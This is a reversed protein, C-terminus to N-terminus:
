KARPRGFPFQLTTWETDRPKVVGLSDRWQIRQRVVTWLEENDPLWSRQSKEPAEDDLPCLIRFGISRDRNPDAMWSLSSPFDPDEMWLEEDAVLRSMPQCDAVEDWCGGGCALAAFRTAAYGVSEAVSYEYPELQWLHSGKTNSDLVWESVNGLMDHIGFANPLRQGVRLPGGDERGFVAISKLQSASLLEAPITGQRHSALCAYTWEAESPLRYHDKLLISLWKTYQRAAYQSMSTAPCDPSTAFELRSSTDYILTPATVADIQEPEIKRPQSEKRFAVALSMFGAYEHWTVEYKGLWFPRIIITVIQGNDKQIRLTGGPVPIMEFTAETGPIEATFPVMFGRDTEVYLGSEPRAHTLREGTQGRALMSACLWVTCAM